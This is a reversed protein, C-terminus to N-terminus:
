APRLSQTNAGGGEVRSAPNKQHPMGVHCTPVHWAATNINAFAAVCRQNPFHIFLAIKLKTIRSLEVADIVVPVRGQTVVDGEIEAAVDHLSRVVGSVPFDRFGTEEM